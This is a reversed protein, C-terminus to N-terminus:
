APPIQGGGQQNMQGMLQPPMTMSPDVPGGSGQMGGGMGQQGMMAMQMQMQLMAFQQHLQIQMILPGIAEPHTTNFWSNEDEIFATKVKIAITHNQDPSVMVQEGLYTKQAQITAKMVEQELGGDNVLSKVNTIKLSESSNL